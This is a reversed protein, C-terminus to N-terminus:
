APITPAEVIRRISAYSLGAGLIEDTTMGAAELAEWCQASIGRATQSVYMRRIPAVRNARHAAAQREAALALLTESVVLEIDTV